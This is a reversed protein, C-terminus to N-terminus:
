LSSRRPKRQKRQSIRPTRQAETTPKERESELRALVRKPAVARFSEDIWQELIDLPVEDKAGFSASVWGSKGLGYGTPETYPLTLAWRGSEPLKLTLNLVVEGQDERGHSLILFVKGKVKIACHGWPFDEHSEPYTLAHKRLASEANTLLSPRKM